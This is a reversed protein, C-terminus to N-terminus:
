LLGVADGALDVADTEFGGIADGDVEAKGVISWGAEVGAEDVGELRELVLAVGGVAFGIELVVGGCHKLRAAIVDTGADVGEDLGFGQRTMLGGAHFVWEGAGRQDLEWLVVAGFLFNGLDNGAKGAGAAAQGGDFGVSCDGPRFGFGAESEM